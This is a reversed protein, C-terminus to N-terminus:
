AEGARPGGPDWAGLRRYAEYVVIGVATSLNLSRVSGWLPIGYCTAANERLIRPPIGTSEPGFVLRSGPLYPARDYPTPARASYYLAPGTGTSALAEPLSGHQRVDVHDWYDLGARRLSRDDLRFGLPHVLHLPSRTAACLRAINGTNPPIEPTLLIVHM